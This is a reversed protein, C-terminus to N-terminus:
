EKRKYYFGRFSHYSQFYTLEYNKELYRMLHKNPYGDDNGITLVIQSANLKSKENFDYYHIITKESFNKSNQFTNNIYQYFAYGDEMRSTMFFVKEYSININREIEKLFKMGGEYFEYDRESYANIKINQFINICIFLLIIIRFSTLLIRKICYCSIYKKFKIKIYLDVRLYFNIHRSKKQVNKNLILSLGPALTLYFLIYIFTFSHFRGKVFIFASTFIMSFWFLIFVLLIPSQKILYDLWKKKNTLNKKTKVIDKIIVFLSLVHLFLLIAGSLFEEYSINNNWTFNNGNIIDFKQSVGLFTNPIDLGQNKCDIVGCLDAKDSSYYISNHISIILPIIAIIIIAVLLFWSKRSFRKDSNRSVLSLGILYAILVFLVFVFYNHTFGTFFLLILFLYAKKNKWLSQLHFSKNSILQIFSYLTILCMMGFFLNEEIERSFVYNVFSFLYILCIIITTKLDTQKKLFLFLFIITACSIIFPLVFLAKQSTGLILFSIKQLYFYVPMHQQGTLLRLALINHPKEFAVLSSSSTLEGFRAENINLYEASINISIYGINLLLLIAIISIFLKRKNRLSFKGKKEM